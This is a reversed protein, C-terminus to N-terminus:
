LRGWVREHERLREEAARIEEKFKADAPAFPKMYWTWWVAPNCMLDRPEASLSSAFLHIRSLKSVAIVAAIMAITFGAIKGKSWPDPDPNHPATTNTSSNYSQPAM